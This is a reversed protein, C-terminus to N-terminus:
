KIHKPTTTQTLNTNSKTLSKKKIKNNKTHSQQKHENKIKTNTNIHM